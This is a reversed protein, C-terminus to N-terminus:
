TQTVRMSAGREFDSGVLLPTKALKQIHNVFVALEFPQAPIVDGNRIRGAVIFGGVHTKTIWGLFRQYEANESPPYDGYGRVIILQAIRDRLSLARLLSTNNPPRTKAWLTSNALLCLAILSRLVAM